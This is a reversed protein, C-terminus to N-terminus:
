PSSIFKSGTKKINPPSPQVMYVATTMNARAYTSLFCKQFHLPYLIFDPVNAYLAIVEVQTSGSFLTKTEMNLLHLISPILLQFPVYLIMETPSLLFVQKRVKAETFINNLLDM